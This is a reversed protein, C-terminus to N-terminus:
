QSYVNVIIKYLKLKLIWSNYQSSYGRSLTIKVNKLLKSVNECTHWVTYTWYEYCLSTMSFMNIPCLYHVSGRLWTKTTSGCMYSDLIYYLQRDYNVSTSQNIVIQSWNQCTIEDHIVRLHYNDDIIYKHISRCHIIM